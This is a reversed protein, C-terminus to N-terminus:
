EYALAEIPDHARPPSAPTSRASSRASCPSSAARHAVLGARHGHPHFGAVTAILWPRRLELGIGLVTGGVGM